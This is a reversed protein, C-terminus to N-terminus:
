APWDQKYTVKETVTVSKTVTVTGDLAVARSMKFRVAFIHKCAMGTRDFDPCQCHSNGVEDKGVIYVGKGTQSPVVWEEGMKSIPLTEAIAQGRLARHNM